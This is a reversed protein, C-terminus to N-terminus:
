GEANHYAEISTTLNVIEKEFSQKAVPFKTESFANWKGKFQTASAGAWVSPNCVNEAVLSNFAEFLSTLEDKDSSIKDRQATLVSYNFAM